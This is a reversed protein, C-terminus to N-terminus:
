SRPSFLESLASIRTYVGPSGAQGCGSGWSVLGILEGGAVLPGGSDGQCADRGGGPDGACLMTAPRYAAGATAPYAKACTEDPLVRVRASRLSGAYAGDGITDGWGYVTAATGPEDARSGTDATKIVSEAPLASALTLVALDGSNSHADYSPNIWARRVAIERGGGGRLEARGAIVRLDRVERLPAGLVERGLCHAATLVKTRGVLVGGCFQGARTGGFRDRSSLAVVWPSDGARAPQGGIIVGDSAAPGAAAVPLAVAAATLALAGALSRNTPRRM